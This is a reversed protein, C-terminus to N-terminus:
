YLGYGSFCLRRITILEPDELSAQQTHTHTHSDSLWTQSKCGLPSYHVLSRRDKPNGLCSYQLKNGNGVRPSRGSGPILGVDGAKAPVKKKKLGSCWRPLGTLINVYGLHHLWPKHCTCANGLAEPHNTAPM